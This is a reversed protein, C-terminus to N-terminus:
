KGEEKRSSSKEHFDTLPLNKCNKNIIDVEGARQNEEGKFGSLIEKEQFVKVEGGSMCAM